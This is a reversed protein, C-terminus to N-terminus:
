PKLVIKSCGDRRADFMRYAEGGSALTLRHSIVEAIRTGGARVVPLLSEMYRRAPCRGTRFTINRAYAEAPTFAFTEETHVAVSAITGGARVCEWALRAAIRGGAAEMVGDAGRGQTAERVVQAADCRSADIPEAGFRAAQDLRAAVTDVAWLAGAGARAAALVTMLGVPGCGIVVWAGGPGAGALDACFAGTSAIDGLLLGEEDSVEDPLKMLTTEAMPVRAAEAQLGALGVGKEIWGFLEGKVCRSTLGDRCFPCTGCSTTFPIAVRDGARFRRVGPGAEMVRGAAEHGMPTGPDLGREVGRYPHLDSGCIAALDIRVLVDGPDEIRPDAVDEYLVSRDGQFTLAKM